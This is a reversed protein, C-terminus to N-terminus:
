PAQPRNPFQKRQALVNMGQLLLWVPMAFLCTEFAVCAAVASQGSVGLVDSFRWGPMLLYTYVTPMMPKDSWKFKHNAWFVYFTLLLSIILVKALRTKV